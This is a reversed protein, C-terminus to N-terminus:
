VRRRRGRERRLRMKRAQAVALALEALWPSSIFHNPEAECCHWSWGEHPTGDPGAHHLVKEFEPFHALQAPTM